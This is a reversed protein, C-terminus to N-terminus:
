AEPDIGGRLKDKYAELGAADGDVVFKAQKPWTDPKLIRMRSGAVDLAAQLSDV